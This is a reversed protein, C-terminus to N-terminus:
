ELIAFGVTPATSSFIAENSPPTPASQVVDPCAAESILIIFIKFAPSWITLAAVIYPPVIFRKATVRLFNPISHVKTSASAESSSICFANLSFVFTTNPSVIAFGAILM